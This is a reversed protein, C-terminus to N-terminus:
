STVDNTPLKRIIENFFKAQFVISGSEIVSIIQEGTKKLVYLTYITIDSDSGTLRFGEENVDIKIGTLIPNALRPSIAKMVDNFGELLRDRMIEFKM